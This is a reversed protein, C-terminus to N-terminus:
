LARAMRLALARNCIDDINANFDVASVNLVPCIFFTAYELVAKKDNLSYSQPIRHAADTIQDNTM